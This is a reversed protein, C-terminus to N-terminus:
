AKKDVFLGLIEDMGAAYDLLKEPPIEKVVEKTEKDVLRIVLRNTAEHREYSTELQQKELKKNIADIRDNIGEENVDQSPGIIDREISHKTKNVLQAENTSKASVSSDIKSSMTPVKSVTSISLDM